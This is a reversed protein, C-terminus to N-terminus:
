SSGKLEELQKTILRLRETISPEAGKARAQGIKEAGKFRGQARNLPPDAVLIAVLELTRAITSGSITVDKYPVLSGDAAYGDIGFWSFSDWRRHLRPKTHHSYLRAGIGEASNAEGVYVLKFGSYIAYIGRQAWVEVLKEKRSLNKVTQRYHGRHGPM